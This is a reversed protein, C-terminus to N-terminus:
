AQAHDAETFVGGDVALVGGAKEVRESMLLAYASKLECGVFSRGAALACVATTGAGAFPDLVTDGPRSGLRVCLDALAEPMVAFHADKYPKANIVWVDRRNRHPYGEGAAPEKAAGVDWWYRDSKALLFVHEHSKTCRDRVSEPMPNGKAWIIDQRLYWGDAQLALAVRWPIGILDKPKAGPPVKRSADLEAERRAGQGTLTNTSNARSGGQSAYSDGLNLFVVGDERLVRRVERFVEVM